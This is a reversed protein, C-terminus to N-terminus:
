SCTLRGLTIVPPVRTKPKFGRRFHSRAPRASRPRAPSRPRQMSHFPRARQCRSPVATTPYAPISIRRSCDRLSNGVPFSHFRRHWHYNTTSAGAVFSHNDYIVSEGAPVRFFCTPLSSPAQLNRGRNRAGTQARRGYSRLTDYESKQEGISSASLPAGGVELCRHPRSHPRCTWSCIFDSQDPCTRPVSPGFCEPGQNTQFMLNAWGYQQAMTVYPAVDAPNVYEFSCKNTSCGTSSLGNMRCENTTTDLNCLKVFGRHSHDPDFPSGLPVQTLRVKHGNNDTGFNQLDYPTPCKSRNTGCLGQFLNDPTRNEQYIIVIHHFNSVEAQSFGPVISALALLSLTKAMSKM